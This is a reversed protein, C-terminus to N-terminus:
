KTNETGHWSNREKESQEWQLVVAKKKGSGSELDRYKEM